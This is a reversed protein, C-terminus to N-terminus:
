ESPGSPLSSIKCGIGWWSSCILVFDNILAHKVCLIQTICTYSVQDYHFISSKKAKYKWKDNTCVGCLQKKFDRWTPLLLNKNSFKDNLKTKEYLLDIFPKRMYSNWFLFNQVVKVMMKLGFLTMESGYEMKVLHFKYLRSLYQTNICPRDLEKLSHSFFM